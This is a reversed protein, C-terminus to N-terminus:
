KVVESMRVLECHRNVGLHLVRRGLDCRGSLRASTHRGITDESDSASVQPLSSSVCQKDCITWLRPEKLVGTGM